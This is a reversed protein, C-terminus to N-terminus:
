AAPERRQEQHHRHGALARVIEAGFEEGTQDWEFRVGNLVEPANPPKVSNLGTSAVGSGQGQQVPQPLFNIKGGAKLKVEFAKEFDANSVGNAVLIFQAM